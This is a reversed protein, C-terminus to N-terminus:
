EGGAASSSPIAKLSAGPRFRAVWGPPIPIPAGTRPNRAMGTKRPTVLFTGFRRIVVRNGDVMADAVAHFVSEVALRAEGRTLGTAACTRAVLDAKVMDFRAPM